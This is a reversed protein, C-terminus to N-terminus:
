VGTIFSKIVAKVYREYFRQLANLDWSFERNVFSM